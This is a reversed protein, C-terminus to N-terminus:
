GLAFSNTVTARRSLPLSLDFLTNLNPKRDMYKKIRLKRLLAIVFGVPSSSNMKLSTPMGSDAEQQGCGESVASIITVQLVHLGYISILDTSPFTV